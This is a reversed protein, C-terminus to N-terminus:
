SVSAVVEKEESPCPSSVVPPIQPPTEVPPMFSVIDRWSPIGLQESPIFGEVSRQTSEVRRATIWCKKSEPIRSSADDILFWPICKSFGKKDSTYGIGLMEHPSQILDKVAKVLKKYVGNQKCLDAFMLESRAGSLKWLSWPTAQLADICIGRVTWYLKTNISGAGSCVYTLTKEIVNKVEGAVCGPNGVDVRPVWLVPENVMRGASFIEAILHHRMLLLPLGPTGALQCRLQSVVDTHLSGRLSEKGPTTEEGNRYWKLKRPEIEIYRDTIWKM